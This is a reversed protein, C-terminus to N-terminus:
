CMTVWPDSRTDHMSGDLLLLSGATTEKRPLRCSATSRRHQQVAGFFQCLLKQAVTDYEM